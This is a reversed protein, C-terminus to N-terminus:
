PRRLREELAERTRLDSARRRLQEALNEFEIEERLRELRTPEGMPVRGRHGGEPYADVPVGRARRRQARKRHRENLWKRDVRTGADIVRGCGCACRRGLVHEDPEM